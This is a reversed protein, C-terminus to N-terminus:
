SVTLDGCTARSRCPSIPLNTTSLAPLRLRYRNGTCPCHCIFLISLRFCGLLEVAQAVEYDATLLVRYPGMGPVFGLRTSHM